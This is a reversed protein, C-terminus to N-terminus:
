GYVKGTQLEGAMAPSNKQVVYYMSYRLPFCLQYNFTNNTLHLFSPTHKVVVTNGGTPVCIM